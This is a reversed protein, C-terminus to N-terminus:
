QKPKITDPNASHGNKKVSLHLSRCLHANVYHTRPKLRAMLSTISSLKGDTLRAMPSTISSRKCKVHLAM